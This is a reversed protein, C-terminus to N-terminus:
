TVQPILMGSIDDESVDEVINRHALAAISVDVGAQVKGCYIVTSYGEGDETHAERIEELHSLLSPENENM